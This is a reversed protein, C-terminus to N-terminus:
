FSVLMSFLAFAHSAHALDRVRGCFYERLKRSARRRGVVYLARLVPRLLVTALSTDAATDLQLRIVLDLLQARLGCQVCTCLSATQDTDRSSPPLTRCWGLHRQVEACSEM